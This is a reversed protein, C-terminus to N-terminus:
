KITKDLFDLMLQMPLPKLGPRILGMGHQGNPIELAEYASNGKEQAKRCPTYQFPAAVCWVPIPPDAQGLKAIVEDYQLTLYNDPSLSFAGKCTEPYQSNLYLCGDAAGDGGISSGIAVIRNPDVGELKTAALMASQADDLWGKSNFSVCGTKYPSCGRFTFLLVAYSKGAPVEPFWSPDFWPMDGTIPFPNKQGRNQLWVAVEYWSSM